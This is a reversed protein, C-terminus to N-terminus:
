AGPGRRRYDDITKELGEELSTRPAWGLRSRTTELDAARVRENPPDPRAGFRPAVDSELLAAIRLVVDRVSVLRGTGLDISGDVLADSAGLAVLGEVLDDIYIWDVPRTGSGLAPAEGRLLSRITYPVLRSENPDGPGYVMFIRATVVPRGYLAHFMRGYVTSAWTAAAYPSAPVPDEGGPGPEELSGALVVRCDPLAQTAALLNVSSVLKGHLTPLVAEPARSGTVHAALHYVLRPRTARVVAEIEELRGADAAHAAVAGEPALGSRSLAHVRAGQEALRRCLARGIFGTAGTVLVADSPSNVSEEQRAPEQVPDGPDAAQRM